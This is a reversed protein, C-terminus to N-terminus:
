VWGYGRRFSGRHHFSHGSYRATDTGVQSLAARMHTILRFQSLPSGDEFLFLPGISTPRIALYGLMATVPCLIDGTRSLFLHVGAGFPGTKSRWLLVALVRLNDRSDISLDAVSLTDTTASVSIFEGARRFGFFGLCCAAWLMVKDFSPPGQSWITHLKRLLDPTIPLRNARSHGPTM